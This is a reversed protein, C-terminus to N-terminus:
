EQPQIGMVRSTPEGGIMADQPTRKEQILFAIIICPIVTGYLLLASYGLPINGEGFFLVWYNNISHAMLAVLYNKILVLSLSLFFFVVWVHLFIDLTWIAYVKYHGVYFLTNSITFAILMKYFSAPRRFRSLIDFLILFNFFRLSEEGWPGLLVVLFGGARGLEAATFQFPIILCFDVVNIGLFWLFPVYRSSHTQPSLRFIFYSIGLSIFILQYGYFSSNIWFPSAPNFLM